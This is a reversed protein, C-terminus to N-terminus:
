DASHLEENNLEGEIGQDTSSTQIEFYRFGGRLKRARWVLSDIQVPTFDQLSVWKQLHTQAHFLNHIRRIDPESSDDWTAILM